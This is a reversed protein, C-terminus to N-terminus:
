FVSMILSSLNFITTDDGVILLYPVFTPMLLMQNSLQGTAKTKLSSIADTPTVAEPVVMVAAATRVSNCYDNLHTRPM